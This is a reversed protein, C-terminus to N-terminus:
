VKGEFFAEELGREDLGREDFFDRYDSSAEM